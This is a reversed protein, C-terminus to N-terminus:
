QRRLKELREMLRPPMVGPAHPQRAFRELIVVEADRDKRKRYIIALKEYAGPAVGPIDYYSEQETANVIELLLTEAAHEDSERRLRAVEGHWESHHRGRVMGL